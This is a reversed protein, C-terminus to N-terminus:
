EWFRLSYLDADRRVFRLRITKGPLKSVDMGGSWSIVRAIEDGIIEPSEALRRRANQM